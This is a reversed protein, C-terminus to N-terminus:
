FICITGYANKTVTITAGNNTFEVHKDAVPSGSHMNSLFFKIAHSPIGSSSLTYISKFPVVRVISSPKSSETIDTVPPFPPLLDFTNITARIKHLLLDNCSTLAFTSIILYIYISKM